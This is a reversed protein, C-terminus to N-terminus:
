LSNKLIVQHLTFSTNLFIWSLMMSTILGASRFIIHFAKILWFLLKRMSIKYDLAVNNLLSSSWFLSVIGLWHYMPIATKKFRIRSFDFVAPFGLASVLLFQCFTILHVSNRINSTIIELALVNSCCGGFIQLLTAIM